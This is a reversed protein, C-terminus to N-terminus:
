NAKVEDAFNAWRVFHFPGAISGWLREDTDLDRGRDLSFFEKADIEFENDLYTNKGDRVVICGKGPEVRGKFSKGTWEVIMNCGSMKELQDVSLEKLREPERSAGYFKQEEKVTYHEIAIHNEAPILKMVRMRYPQNLMFDYAQELFLSVGSFLELPLPRICVRIHAYFPPNEFAQEQNSFDASMWRALTAIDTSHTM